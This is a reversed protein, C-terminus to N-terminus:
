IKYMCRSKWRRWQSDTSLGKGVQLDSTEAPSYFAIDVHLLRIIDELACRASILLLWASDSMGYRPLGYDQPLFDGDAGQHDRDFDCPRPCINNLISMACSLEEVCESKLFKRIVHSEFATSRLFSAIHLLLIEQTELTYGVVALNGVDGFSRSM